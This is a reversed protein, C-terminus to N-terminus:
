SPRLTSLRRRARRALREVFSPPTSLQYLTRVEDAWDSKYAEEGRLFDIERDGRECARAIAKAKVVSGAGRWQHDPDRGSQYFSAVGGVEFWLDIAIAQGDVAFRHAVLEGLALGTRIATSFVDLVPLVASTGGFRLAHLRSFDAVAAEAQAPAVVEYVAGARALRRETRQVTNRLASPRGGWYEEFTPPVPLWPAPRFPAVVVRPPMASALLSDEPVGRLDIRRPAARALWSRIAGVVLAPDRAALIDIHDPSLRSGAFRLVPVRKRRDVEFPVGGLLTGDEALVLVVQTGASRTAGLWWSRLFPSAGVQLGLRDWEQEYGSLDGSVVVRVGEDALETGDNVARM